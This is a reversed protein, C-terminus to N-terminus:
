AAAKVPAKRAVKRATRKSETASVKARITTERTVITAMTSEVDAWQERDLVKVNDSLVKLASLVLAHPTLGSETAGNAPAKGGANRPTGKAKAAKTVEAKFAEVAKTVSAITAGDATIAAAVPAKDALNRRALDDWLPSDVTLGHEVAMTGLRTWRTLLSRSNVGFLGLYTAGDYVPSKGGIVGHAKAAYTAVAANYTLLGDRKQVNDAYANAARTVMSRAERPTTAIPAKTSKTNSM